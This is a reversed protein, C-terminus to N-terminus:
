KEFAFIKNWDDMMSIVTWMREKGEAMLADHLHRSTIHEAAPVFDPSGPTTIKAVFETIAKKAAGANWSPLPDAARANTTTFAVACSLAVAFSSLKRAIKM